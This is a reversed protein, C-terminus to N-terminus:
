SDPNVVTSSRRIRKAVRRSLEVLSQQLGALAPTACQKPLVVIDLQTPLEERTLRFAERLLRKWRNRVVANGIKRSVVLGLRPHSFESAAGYLIIRGDAASCKAAFVRDFAERTLLRQQKPFRQDPLDNM